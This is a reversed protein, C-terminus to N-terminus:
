PYTPLFFFNSKVLTAIPFLFSLYSRISFSSEPLNENAINTRSYDPLINIQSYLAPLFAITVLLVSLLFYLFIKKYERCYQKSFYLFCVLLLLIFYASAIPIAPHGGALVMYFSLTFFQV